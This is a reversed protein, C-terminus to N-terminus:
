DKGATVLKDGHEHTILRKLTVDKDTEYDNAMFEAAAQGNDQEDLQTINAVRNATKKGKKHANKETNSM